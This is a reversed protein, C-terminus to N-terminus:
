HSGRRQNGVRLMASKGEQVRAIARQAVQPAALDTKIAPLFPKVEYRASGM